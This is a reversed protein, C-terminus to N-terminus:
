EDSVFRSRVVASPHNRMQATVPELAKSPYAVIGQAVADVMTCGHDQMLASRLVAYAREKDAPFRHAHEILSFIAQGRVGPHPDVVMTSLFPLKHAGNWSALTNVFGLPNARRQNLLLAEAELNKLVGAAIQLHLVAAPFENRKFPLGINSGTM